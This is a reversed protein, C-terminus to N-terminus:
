YLTEDNKAYQKTPRPSKWRTLSMFDDKTLYKQDKFKLHLFM